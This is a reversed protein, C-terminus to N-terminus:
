FLPFSLTCWTVLILAYSSHLGLVVGFTCVCLSSLSTTVAFGRTRDWGAVHVHLSWTFTFAPPAPVLRLTHPLTVSYSDCYACGFATFPLYAHPTRTFQTYTTRYRSDRTHLHTHPLLHACPVHTTFRTFQTVAHAHTVLPPACRGLNIPSTCPIGLSGYTYSHLVCCTVLTFLGVALICHAPSFWHTFRAYGRRICPLGLKVSRM